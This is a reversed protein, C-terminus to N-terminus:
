DPITASRVRPWPPNTPFSPQAADKQSYPGSYKVAFLGIIHIRGTSCLLILQISNTKMCSGSSVTALKEFNIHTPIMIPKVKLGRGELVVSRQLGTFNKTPVKM